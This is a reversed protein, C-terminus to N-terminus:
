RNRSDNPKPLGRLLMVKAAINQGAWAFQPPDNGGDMINRQVQRAHGRADSAPNHAHPKAHQASRASMPPPQNQWWQRLEEGHEQTLALTGM